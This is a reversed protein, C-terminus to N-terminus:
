AAWLADAATSTMLTQGQAPLLQVLAERRTRDLESLVDDLLLLPGGGRRDALCDAEALM